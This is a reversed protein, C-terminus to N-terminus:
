SAPPEPEPQQHGTVTTDVRNLQDKMSNGGNPTVEHHVKDVKKAVDELVDMRSSASMQREEIADLRAMVGPRAPVGPRGPEGQWDDAFEDFRRFFRWLRPTVFAFFTGLATAIAACAVWFNLDGM